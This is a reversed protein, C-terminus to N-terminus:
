GGADRECNIRVHFALAAPREDTTNSVGHHEWRLTCAAGWIYSRFVGDCWVLLYLGSACTVAVQWIRHKLRQRWLRQIIRLWSHTQGWGLLRAMDELHKLTAAGPSHSSVCNLFCIIQKPQNTHTLPHPPPLLAPPAGWWAM